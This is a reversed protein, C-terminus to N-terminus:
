EVRRFRQCASCPQLIHVPSHWVLLLAHLQGAKGAVAEAACSAAVQALWEARHRSAGVAGPCCRGVCSVMAAAAVAPVRIALGPQRTPVCHSACCTAPRWKRLLLLLLLIGLVLVLLVLMLVLVLVSLDTSM